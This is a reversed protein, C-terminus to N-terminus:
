ESQIFFNVPAISGWNNASDFAVPTATYSGNPVTVQAHWNATGSAPFRIYDSQFSSGNWYQGGSNILAIEIRALSLNDSATGMITFPASTTQTPLPSVMTISPRINDASGVTFSVPAIAGWNNSSDFVVPTVSYTGTSLLASRTWLSTGSTAIRTYETQFSTGNFYEGNSNTIALEIRHVLVDDAASGSFNVLSPAADGAEPASMTVTPASDDSLVTFISPAIAGWNNSTDFAVPTVQYIGPNLTITQTWASTGTTSMRFYDTQFTTGNFYQGDSNVIALEVRQVKVDDEASGTFEISSFVQSGHAPTLLTVTPVTDDKSGVTFLTPATAGWNNSTDFAVSTVSYTGPDLSFTRSWASTGSANVRIYDSQFSTGNFYQSDSNTLTLEVHQVQIDDDATGTINVPSSVFAGLESSDLTVTPATEDIEVVPQAECNFFEAFTTIGSVETLTVGVIHLYEVTDSFDIHSSFRDLATNWATSECNDNRAWQAFNSTTTNTDRDKFDATNNNGVNGNDITIYTALNNIKTLNVPLTQQVNFGLSHQVVRIQKLQANTAGHYTQLRTLVDATFDMPGGEAISVINGNQLVPWFKEAQANVAQTWGEGTDLYNGAGYASDAVAQAKQRRTEGINPGQGLTNTEVNYLSQLNGFGSHDVHGYAGIVVAPSISFKNSINAGAAIAQLDDLDPAVDYHLAILDATQQNVAASQTTVTPTGDPVESDQATADTQEPNEGQNSNDTPENSDTPGSQQPEEIPAEEDEALFIIEIGKIAPNQTVKTFTIDLIEDANVDFSIQMATFGGVKSFVDINNLFKDEVQVNFVRGGVHMAGSWFESLYLNVQYNGPTVPFQWYLPTNLWRESQFLATPVSSDIDNRQINNAVGWSFGAPAFQKAEDDGIWGGDLPGGGANVRYIVTKTLPPTTVLDDNFFDNDTNPQSASETAINDFSNEYLEDLQWTPGKEFCRPGSYNRSSIPIGPCFLEDNQLDENIPDHGCQVTNFYLRGTTPGTGLKTEIDQCIQQVNRDGIPTTIVIGGIDRDYTTDCYCQGNVSYSDSWNQPSVPDPVIPEQTDEAVPLQFARTTTSANTILNEGGTAVILKGDIVRAAAASVGVPLELENRIEWTETDRNMSLVKEANGLGAVSYIQNGHSFTGPEAHSRTFPLDPLKEWRNTAPDFSHVTTLQVIPQNNCNDHNNQGGIAYIKQDLVTTAFHNRPEPMAAYSTIEKWGNNTHVDYTYHYDVDCASNSDLGGFVHIKGEVLAAGGGAFPRPLTPGERWTHNNLNFIWVKDSVTGPHSGIRGGILWVENNYLISGAHTVANGLAVETSGLINWTDTSPNFEEVSNVIEITDSFGNFVLLRDDHLIATSEYRAENAHAVTDWQANAPHCVTLLLLSQLATQVIRKYM